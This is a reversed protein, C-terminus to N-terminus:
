DAALVKFGHSADRGLQAVLGYEWDLYAQMAQRPADTGEYPRRYRDIRPSALREDGGSTAFGAAAWADSGGSLVAVPLSSAAAADAAVWTSLLGDPCVLVLREVTPAEASIRAWASHLQSRLAWWSGAVHRRAFAASTGVDIVAVRSPQDDALLAALETVTIRDVAPLPARAPRWTGTETFAANDVEALWAVDWGLQALWHATMPARVGEGGDVLVIRAGRVAVFHDTEQVLQGGPANGFGPLHGAAFEDAQRVDYRYLSRTPDLVLAALQAPTLRIAGAQAALAQARSAALQSNAADVAGFRRASGRALEHGALTWGITGNRLAAVPNPIGANVLSQTGIISRTRGACNVVVRTTPKPALDRVRLALEAGPVSIGTPISMVQYEDFRRADLVVLDAGAAILAKVEDASLSPTGREHEVLEGFAKSPVNVDRFLEGGNDRWGALDGALRHVRSYGLATLRQAALDALGEGDDYLAIPVDRRPLRWAADAELRSLPMQAAFLPHSQAFPDEERVDILAIERGTRL